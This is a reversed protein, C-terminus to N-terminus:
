IVWEIKGDPTLEFHKGEIAMNLWDASYLLKPWPEFKNFVNCKLADGVKETFGSTGRGGYVVERQKEDVKFIQNEPYAKELEKDSRAELHHQFTLRGGTFKVIKYM